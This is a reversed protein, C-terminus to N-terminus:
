IPEYYIWNSIPFQTFLHWSVPALSLLTLAISAVALTLVLGRDLQKREYAIAFPIALLPIVPTLLRTSWCWFGIPNFRLGYIFILMASLVTAYKVERVGWNRNIGAASGILIPQTALMLLIMLPMTVLPNNRWFMADGQDMVIKHTKYAIIERSYGTTLPGGFILANYSFFIATVLAIPAVLFLINKLRNRSIYYVVLAIPIIALTTKALLLLGSLLGSLVLNRRRHETRRGALIMFYFSSITLLATLVEAYLVQSYTFIITGLAFLVTTEASAEEGAFLKCTKYILYCTLFGLLANFLYAGATGGILYAPVLMVSLLPPFSIYVKNDKGLSVTSDKIMTEVEDISDYVYLRHNKVINETLMMYYISDGFVYEPIGIVSDSRKQPAMQSNLFLASVYVLLILWLFYKRNLDSLNM